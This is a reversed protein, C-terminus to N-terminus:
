AVCCLGQTGEEAAIGDLLWEELGFSECYLRLEPKVTQNRELNGTELTKADQPILYSTHPIIYSYQSSHASYTVIVIQICIRLTYATAGIFLLMVQMPLIDYQLNRRADRM